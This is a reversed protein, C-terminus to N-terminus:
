FLYVLHVTNPIYALYIFLIYFSVFITINLVVSWIYTLPLIRNLNDKYM